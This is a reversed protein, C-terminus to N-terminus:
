RRDTWMDIKLIRGPMPVGIGAPDDKEAKPRTAVRSEVAEDRVRVERHQGNLEFWVNRTGDPRIEGIGLLKVILTKGPEIEVSTKQGPELRLFVGAHGLAVHRFIGPINGFERYLQPYFAYSILDARAASRKELLGEPRSLVQRRVRARRRGGPRREGDEGVDEALEPALQDWDFPPLM